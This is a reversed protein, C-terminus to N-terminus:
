VVLFNSPAFISSKKIFVLVVIKKKIKEVCKPFRLIEDIKATM